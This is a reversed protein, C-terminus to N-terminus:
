IIVILVLQPEMLRVRVFMMMLNIACFEMMAEPYILNKAHTSLLSIWKQHELIEMLETFKNSECWIKNIAFGEVPNAKKASLSAESEEGKSNHEDDFEFVRRRKAAVQPASRRRSSSSPAKM